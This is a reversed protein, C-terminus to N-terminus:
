VATGMAYRKMKQKVMERGISLYYAIQSKTLGYAVGIDAYSIDKIYFDVMCDEIIDPLEDIIANLKMAIEQKSLVLAPDSERYLRVNGLEVAACVVPKEQHWHSNFSICTKFAITQLWKRVSVKEHRCNFRHISAFAKLFTEQAMDDANSDHSLVCCYSRIPPYYRSYLAEFADKQGAQAHKILEIDEVLEIQMPVFKIKKNKALVKNRERTTVLSLATVCLHGDQESAIIFLQCITAM